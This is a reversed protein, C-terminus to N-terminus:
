SRKPRPGPGPIFGEKSAKKSKQDIFDELDTRLIRRCRGIKISQLEGNKLLKSLASLSIGGLESIAEQKNLLLTKNSM